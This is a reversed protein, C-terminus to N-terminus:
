VFWLGNFSIFYFYQISSFQISNLVFRFNYYVSIINNQNNMRCLMGSLVSPMVATRHDEGIEGVHVGFGRFGHRATLHHGVASPVRGATGFLRIIHEALSPKTHWQWTMTSQKKRQGKCLNDTYKRRTGNNLLRFTYCNNKEEMNEM